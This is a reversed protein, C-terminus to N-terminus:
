FTLIYTETPQGEGKNKQHGLKVCECVFDCVHTNNLLNQIFGICHAANGPASSVVVGTRVM